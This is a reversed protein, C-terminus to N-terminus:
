FNFVWWGDYDCGAAADTFDSAWQREYLRGMQDWVSAIGDSLIHGPSRAGDADYRNLAVTGDSLILIDHKLHFCFSKKVPSLDVVQLDLHAQGFTDLRQVIITYSSWKQYFRYLEDENLTSRTFQLYVKKPNDLAKIEQELQELPLLTYGSQVPAKFEAFRAPQVFSLDFIVEVNDLKLARRVPAFDSLLGRSEILFRIAPYQSLETIVADIQPHVFPEGHFGLLVVPNTSFTAIDRLIHRFDELKMVGERSSLDSLWLRGKERITTLQIEYYTPRARMILPDQNLHKELALMDQDHGYKQLIASMVMVDNRTAPTFNLRYQVLRCPSIFINTDYSSLDSEFLEKISDRFLPTDAGLTHLIFPAVGSNIVEPLIGMPLNEPYTYDFALRRQESLMERTSHLDVLAAYANLILVETDEGQDAIWQLVENGTSARLVATGPVEERPNLLTINQTLQSIKRICHERFSLLEEADACRADDILLACLNM